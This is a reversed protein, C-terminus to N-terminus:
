QPSPLQMADQAFFARYEATVHPLLVSAPVEVSQVGDSYPGVQYPPFVFRLAALRGDSGLVPEFQQFNAADPALGADIMKLGSKMFEARDAPEMTSDADIRQSFSAHMQERAYDSVDRWGAEDAILDSAKLMRQQAPLWVFRAILPNGHAGGTYSSGEASVAVISPTETLTIFALSLDYPATPKDGSLGNVAQMLEDRADTAYAHLANALGPYREMGKPYSIGIMYRPDREIVDELVIPGPTGPSASADSGATPPASSADTPQPASSERQCAMLSLILVCVLLGKVRSM